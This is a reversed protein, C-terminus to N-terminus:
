VSCYPCFLERGTADIVVDTICLEHTWRGCGCQVWDETDEENYDEYCVSCQWVTTSTNGATTDVTESLNSPGDSDLADCRVRKERLTYSRSPRKRTVQAEVSESPAEISVTSVSTQKKTLRKEAVEAKKRAAAARKEAAAARKEAAIAKKKELEEEREKKKQERLSRRKEKEEKEKQKKEEREKLISACKDSTLM